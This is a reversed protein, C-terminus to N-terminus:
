DRYMCAMLYEDYNMVKEPPIQLEDVLQHYIAYYYRETAIVVFDYSLAQLEKPAVVPVGNMSSGQKSKANDTYAVIHGSEYGELHRACYDGIDGVGFIVLRTDVDVKRALCEPEEQASQWLDEKIRRGIMGDLMPLCENAAIRESMQRAREEAQVMDCFRAMAEARCGSEYSDLLKQIPPTMPERYAENYLYLVPCKLAAVEVMVASRDIMVADAHMLTVRYDDAQDVYVNTCDRLEDLLRVAKERLEPEITSDTFKPHPMFIFFLEEHERIYPIFKLFEKLDPTAQLKQSGSKFVKPFHSKWLIIRRGGIREQLEQPLPFREKHAFADFRPLGLARVAGANTCHQRYEEQMAASLVYIRFANLVPPLTFHKYRSEATDSIEIGYPVYVIRAGQRKYRMTWFDLPRHGKDYPTQYVMYHPHYALMEQPSFIEYPLGKEELFERANQMQAKDGYSIDEIWVLKVEFRSDHLCEHYLSEWSPWFSPVQFVFVIRIKDQLTLWLQDMMGIKEQPIGEDLLRSRIEQFYKGTSILIRDYATDELQPFDLMPFEKTKVKADMVGLVDYGAAVAQRGWKGLMRQYSEGLGYIVIRSGQPLSLLNKLMLSAEECEKDLQGVSDFCAAINERFTLSGQVDYKRVLWFMEWMGTQRAIEYYFWRFRRMLMRVFATKDAFGCVRNAEDMRQLLEVEELLLDVLQGEALGSPFRRWSCFAEASYRSCDLKLFHGVNHRIRIAFEEALRNGKELSINGFGFRHKVLPENINGMSTKDLIRMWLDYDEALKTGDYFWANDVFLQRRFMVSTHSLQCGFLMEAKLLESEAPAYTVDTKEPTVSEQLTGCLGIEPHAELYEVQRELRQPSSVDDDDMRAIYKGKAECIGKNLSEALGLRSDNFYLRLRSDRHAFELLTEVVKMDAGYEVVVILELSCYTQDLISQVAESLYEKWGFVTMVVSVMGLCKCSKQQRVLTVAQDFGLIKEKAWGTQRLSGYNELFGNESALVAYDLDDAAASSVDEALYKLSISKDRRAELQALTFKYAEGAGFVALRTNPLFRDPLGVPESDQAGNWLCALIRQACRGDLYPVCEHFAEQRKERGEDEGRLLRDCFAAMDEAGTGKEYSELLKQVPATMPEDYDANYLYLVPIGKLGAEVMVASRDVIIADARLLSPRYDEQRDIHVNPLNGLTDLLRGAMARLRPPVSKGAFKPHPLFIFFVNEHQRVYETFALYEELDPTATRVQGNEQFEKPFHAKWLVVKRGGIRSEVSDPLPFTKQLADFRPLGTVQVADPNLCYRLYEEGMAESLVFIAAANRVLPQAFHMNRSEATDSIEIGYPIYAIRSGELRYCASWAEPLRHRREYPTQYLMWHPAFGTIAEYSFVEYSIGHERLFEEGHEMQDRDGAKESWPVLFLKVAFRSDQRAAEWVSEWSPWFSGAQFIFAVRVQGKCQRYEM